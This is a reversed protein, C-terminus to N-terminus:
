RIQNRPPAGRLAPEHKESPSVRLSCFQVALQIGMWWQNEHNTLAFQEDSRKRLVAARLVIRAQSISGIPVGIRLTSDAQPTHPNGPFHAGARYPAPPGTGECAFERVRAASYPERTM